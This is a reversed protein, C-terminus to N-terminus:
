HGVASCKLLMLHGMAKAHELLPELKPKFEGWSFAEGRVAATGMALNTHAHVRALAMERLQRADPRGQGREVAAWDNGGATEATMTLRQLLADGTTMGAVQLVPALRSRRPLPCSPARNLVKAADLVDVDGLTWMPMSLAATM